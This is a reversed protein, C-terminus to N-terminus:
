LHANELYKLLGDKKMYGEFLRKITETTLM